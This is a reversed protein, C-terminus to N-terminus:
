WYRYRIENSDDMDHTINSLITKSVIETDIYIIENNDNM